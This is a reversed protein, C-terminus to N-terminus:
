IFLPLEGFSQLFGECALFAVTPRQLFVGHEGASRRGFRPIAAVIRLSQTGLCNGAIDM